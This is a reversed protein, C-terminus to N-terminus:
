RGTCRRTRLPTRTVWRSVMKERRAPLSVRRSTVRAALGRDPRAPPPSCPLPRPHWGPLLDLRRPCLCPRHGALPHSASGARALMGALCGLLGGLAAILADGGPSSSSTAGLASGPPHRDRTREHVSALMINAIGIGGVVLSFAAISLMVLHYVRSTEERQRLLELPVVIEYDPRDHLSGLMSSIMQATTPVDEARAVQVVIQDLEVKSYETSGGRSVYNVTGFTRMASSYPVYVEHAQGDISLAKKTHSRLGEDALIGVVQYSHRGLQLWIGLPDESPALERLLDRRVLCVRTAARQDLDEFRRGREVELGFTELYEPEVGLVTAEARHGRYWARERARNVRLVRSVTHIVDEIYSADEFRLGYSDRYSQEGGEPRNTEPPKVSNLIVNRVGLEGIRSLIESRAGAGVSLMAIV